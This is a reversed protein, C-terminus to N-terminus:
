SRRCFCGDWRPHPLYRTNEVSCFPKVHHALGVRGSPVLKRDGAAMSSASASAAVVRRAHAGFRRCRCRVVVVSAAPATAAMAVSRHEAEVARVVMAVAQRAAGTM